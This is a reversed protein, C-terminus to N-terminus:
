ARRQPVARCCRELVEDKDRRTERCSLRGRAGYRRGIFTLTLSLLNLPLFSGLFTCRRGHGPLNLIAAYLRKQLREIAQRAAGAGGGKLHRPRLHQRLRPESGFNKPQRPAFAECM